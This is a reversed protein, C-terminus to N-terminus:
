CVQNYNEVALIKRLFHHTCPDLFAAKFFYPHIATYRNGHGLSVEREYILEENTTTHYQRDFNDLIKRTLQKLVPDAAQSAIVQLFSQRITYIAVPVLSGTVYKEGELVRQWFAM